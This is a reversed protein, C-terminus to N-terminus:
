ADLIVSCITTASPDDSRSIMFVEPGSNTDLRVRFSFDSAVIQLLRTPTKGAFLSFYDLTVASAASISTQIPKSGAKSLSALVIDSDAFNTFCTSNRSLVALRSYM